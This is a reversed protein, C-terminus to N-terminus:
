PRSDSREIQEFQAVAAALHEDSTEEYLVGGFGPVTELSLAEVPTMGFDEEGRMLFARWRAYQERLETDTVRGLFEVSKGATARLTRYEPGDGAIRM